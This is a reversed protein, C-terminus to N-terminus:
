LKDGNCRGRRRQCVPPFPCSFPFATWRSGGCLGCGSSLTHVALAWQGLPPFLRCSLFLQGIVAAVCDMALASLMCQLLRSGWPWFCVVPFSFSGLSRRWVTWLWQLSYASSSSVSGYDSVSSLVPFASWHSGGCLGSGGCLTHM